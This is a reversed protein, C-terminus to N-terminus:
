VPLSFDWSFLPFLGLGNWLIVLSLYQTGDPLGPIARLVRIGSSCPTTLMDGHCPVDICLCCLNLAHFSALQLRPFLCRFRTEWIPLEFLLSQTEARPGGHTAKSRMRHFWKRCSHGLLISERRQLPHCQSSMINRLNPHLDSHLTSCLTRCRSPTAVPVPQHIRHLQHMSVEAFIEPWALQISESERQNPHKCKWEPTCYYRLGIHMVDYLM